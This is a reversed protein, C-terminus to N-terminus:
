RIFVALLLWAVPAAVLLSDLRDMVGGHGPLISGLDKVGLDRKIASEALDGAVAAVGAAAGTLLGQWVHGHLLWPVTVAGAALCLLVSGALGEWTKSPSIATAMPHRGLFSGAFFGGVDVCVVLIVFILVRRNGDPAALMAVVFLAPFPLYGLLFVGSAVDRLYGDPGRTLRWALIALVGLVLSALVARNDWWYECAWMAAGSAAIPILPVNIGNTRLARAMEWLGVGIAAAMFILFTWKVTFLTAIVLGGLLVGIAAAVPLNRGSPAPKPPETGGAPTGAAPDDTSGDTSGHDAPGNGASVSAEPGATLDADV